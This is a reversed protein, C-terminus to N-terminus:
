VTTSGDSTSTTTPAMSTSDNGSLKGVRNKLNSTLLAFETPNSTQLSSFRQQQNTVM